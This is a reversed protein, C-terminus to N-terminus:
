GRRWRMGTQQQQEEPRSLIKERNLVGDESGYTSYVRLGSDTLDATSYAALLVLGDLEGGFLMGLRWGRNPVGGGYTAGFRRHHYYDSVYVGFAICVALM